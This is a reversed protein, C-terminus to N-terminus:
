HLGTTCCCCPRYLANPAVVLLVLVLFDGKRCYLFQGERMMIGTASNDTRAIPKPDDGKPLKYCKGGYNPSLSQSVPSCMYADCSEGAASCEAACKDCSGPRSQTGGGRYMQGKDSWFLSYGTKCKVNFACAMAGVTPCSTGSQGNNCVRNGSLSSSPERIGNFDTCGYKGFKHGCRCSSKDNSEKRIAIYKFVGTGANAFKKCKGRAGSGTNQDYEVCQTGGENCSKACNAPGSSGKYKANGPFFKGNIESTHKDDAFCGIYHETTQM